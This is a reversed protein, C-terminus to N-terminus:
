RVIVNPTLRHMFIKYKKLVKVIMKFLPLWLRAQFFSRFVIIDDDKPQSTTENSAFHVGDKENIYSLKKPQIDNDEEKAKSVSKEVIDEEENAGIETTAKMAESIPMTAGMEVIDHVDEDRHTEESSVLTTM